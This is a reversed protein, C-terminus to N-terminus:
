TLRSPGGTQVLPGNFMSGTKSASRRFMKTLSVRISFSPKSYYPKTSFILWKQQQKNPAGIFKFWVTYSPKFFCGALLEYLLGHRFSVLRLLLPGSWGHPISWAQHIFGSADINLGNHSPTRYIALYSMIPGLPKPVLSYRPLIINWVVLCTSQICLYGM